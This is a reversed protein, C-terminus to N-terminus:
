AKHNLTSVLRKKTGNRSNMNITPDPLDTSSLTMSQHPCLLVSAKRSSRYPFMPNSTYYPIVPLSLGIFVFM